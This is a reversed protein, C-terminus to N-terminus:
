RWGWGNVNKKQEGGGRERERERGDADETGVTQAWELNGSKCVRWRKEDRSHMKGPFVSFKLNPKNGRQIENWSINTDPMLWKWLIFVMTNTVAALIYIRITHVSFLTSWRYSTKPQLKKTKRKPPCDYQFKPVELKKGLFYSSPSNQVGGCYSNCM